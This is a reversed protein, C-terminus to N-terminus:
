ASWMFHLACGPTHATGQTHTHKNSCSRNGNIPFCFFTKEKFFFVTCAHSVRAPRLTLPLPAPSTSPARPQAPRHPENTRAAAARRATASGALSTKLPRERILVLAASIAHTPPHCPLAADGCRILPANSAYCCEARCRRAVPLMPNESASMIPLPPFVPVPRCIDSDCSFWARRSRKRLSASSVTSRLLSGYKM